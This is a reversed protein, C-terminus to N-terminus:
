ASPGGGARSETLPLEEALWARWLSLAVALVVPGIFLGLLGFSALGGLVGFVVLLVPMRTAQGIFIPRLVNDMTSIVGAGWVFLLVGALVHGEVMLSVSAPIWIFPPGFPIFSFILTLGGLLVPYRVGAVAFGAAAVIAQAVATMILGYVVGRVTGRIHDLLRPTASGGLRYLASRLQGALVEGNRFFFYASFLCLVLTLFARGFRLVVEYSIRLIRDINDTLFGRIADPRELFARAQRALLDGALPVDGLWAILAEREETRALTEVHRALAQAEATLRLAAFGTPLVIGVVLMVTMLLAAASRNRVRRVVWQNVPWLSLSLIAAWLIATAFPMVISVLLWAVVLLVGVALIWRTKETMLPRPAM